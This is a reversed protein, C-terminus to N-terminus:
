WKIGYNILPEMLNDKNLFPTDNLNMMLPITPGFVDTDLIGVDYNLNKVAAALHVLLLTNYM